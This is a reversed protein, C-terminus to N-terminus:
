ALLYNIRRILYEMDCPKDIYEISAGQMGSIFEFVRRQQASLFIIPIDRTDPNERLLRCAQIGDMEPMAVDLIIIDPKDQAVKKLAEKGNEADEAIFGREELVYSIVERINEQDDVILVKKGKNQVGM